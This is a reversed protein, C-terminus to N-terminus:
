AAGPPTSRGIGIPSSGCWDAASLTSRPRHASWGRDARRAATPVPSGPACPLLASSAMTTCSPHRGSRTSISKRIGPVPPTSAMRSSRRLPQFVGIDREGGATQSVGLRLSTVGARIREHPLRVPLALQQGRDAVQQANAVSVSRGDARGSAGSEAATSAGDASDRATSRRAKADSRDTARHRSGPARRVDRVAQRHPRRAIRRSRGGGNTDEGGVKTVVVQDSCELWMRGSLVCTEASSDRM